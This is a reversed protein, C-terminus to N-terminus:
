RASNNQGFPTIARARAYVQEAEPQRETASLLRALDKMTETILEDGAALNLERITLARSFFPEALFYNGESFYILGLYHLTTALLLQDTEFANDLLNLCRLLLKEAHEPKGLLNLTTSLEHMIEVTVTDVLGPPAPHRSGLAQRYLPVAQAYEGRKFYARALRVCGVTMVATFDKKQAQDTSFPRVGPPTEIPQDSENGPEGPPLELRLMQTTSVGVLSRRSTGDPKNHPDRSAASLDLASARSHGEGSTPAQNAASDTSATTESSAKAIAEQTAASFISADIQDLEATSMFKRRRALGLEVLAESFSFGREHVLNLCNAAQDPKLFKNDVMQQLALAAELVREPIIDQAVLVQGLKEQSILAKEQADLIEGPTSIGARVLLEGLRMVHKRAAAVLNIYETWSKAPSKSDALMRLIEVAKSRKTMGDRVRVQLELAAELLNETIERRTLLVRGLPLGSENSAAISSNLTEQSLAGAEVLLEGLKNTAAKAAKVASDFTCNTKICTKVARVATFVDCSADRVAAQAAILARLGAPALHGERILIQGLHENNDRAREIVSRLEAQPLLGARTILDGLRIDSKYQRM